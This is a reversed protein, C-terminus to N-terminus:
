EQWKGCKIKSQRLKYSLICFCDGCMKNSLEPINKDHVQFAEIPEDEYFECGSCINKREIALLEVDKNTNEFNFKGEFFPDVGTELLTLVKRKVSNTKKKFSQMM